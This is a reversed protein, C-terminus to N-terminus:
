KSEKYDILLNYLDCMENSVIAKATSIALNAIDANNKPPKKDFLSHLKDLMRIQSTKIEIGATAPHIKYSYREERKKDETM